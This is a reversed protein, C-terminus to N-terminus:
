RLTELLAALRDYSENAGREMDPAIANREEASNFRTIGTLKTKGGGLDELIVTVKLAPFNQFIFSHTFREPPIVEDFVGHFPYITGDSGKQEIRWSGGPRVHLECEITTYKSPGWWHVMHRAQTCVEWVLERPADFIRTMVLERDKATAM